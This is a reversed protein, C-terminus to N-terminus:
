LWYEGLRAMREKVRYLWSRSRWSKLMIERSQSLDTAFMADMQAAFDRGLIVANIEDNHLFSRSDLNTSGITSWVGDISVTKAHLLAGQREFIKVGGRLLENYHSRGLHFIAWSDSYSPLVLEVDVGRGAADTLAKLMAPDPAFYAMTLHIDREADGFVSMLTRYIPSAPDNASNGIARVIDRGQPDLKPFYDKPALTAGKQKNWTDLFMKQFEAVVPGEIQTDIDRWGAPGRPKRNPRRSFPNSSYVKSINIGGVFAIRGDVVLLKRHDRNNLLWPRPKNAFPSIPNFELVKIGGSRLRDFYSAPTNLCGVSDYIVSVEVGQAQKELLLNSFQRGVDDDDIIYSELNILDKAGRIAAFMAAYTAPGNQLLVVKNGLVLPSGQNIAQEHALHKDLIDTAGAGGELAGLITASKNASVFGREGKFDV